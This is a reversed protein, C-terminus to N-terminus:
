KDFRMAEGALDVDSIRALQRTRKMLRAPHPHLHTGECVYGYVVTTRPFRKGCEPCLFIQKARLWRGLRKRM